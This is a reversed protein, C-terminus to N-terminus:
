YRVGQVVEPWTARIAEFLEPKTRALAAPDEALCVFTTVVGSDIVTGVTFVIQLGMVFATVLVVVTFVTTRGVLADSLQIYAYSALASLVGGILAAMSWVNGILTDNIVQEVGRNQIITWTDKAAQMYPKGYIAVQAFAYKNVFEAIGQLCALICDFLCGIFQMIGDSDSRAMNAIARMTQIIAIILSGFCISGISTTCARKFSEITPSKSMGQPSGMMFYYTAFVGCVTTHVINTLVQSTWYFSFLSFVLKVYFIAPSSGGSKNYADYVGAVVTMFYLSYVIQVFLGTFSLVFTAPYKRAVSTVTSLM